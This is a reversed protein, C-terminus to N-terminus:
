STFEQGFLTVKLHSARRRHEDWISAYNISSSDLEGRGDSWLSSSNATIIGNQLGVRQGEGLPIAHDMFLSQGALPAHTMATIPTGTVTLQFLSYTAYYGYTDEHMLQLVAKRNRNSRLLGWQKGSDSSGTPTKGFSYREEGHRTFEVLDSTYVSPEYGLSEVAPWCSVIAIRGIVTCGGPPPAYLETINGDAPITRAALVKFVSGM